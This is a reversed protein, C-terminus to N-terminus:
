ITYLEKQKQKFVINIKLPFVYTYQNYINKTSVIFM